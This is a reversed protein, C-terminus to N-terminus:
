PFSCATQMDPSRNKSKLKKITKRNGKDNIEHAVSFFLKNYMNEPMVEISTNGGGEFRTKETSHQYALSFPVAKNVHERYEHKEICGGGGGTGTGKKRKDYEIMHSHIGIGGKYHFEAVSSDSDPSDELLTFKSNEKFSSSKYMIYKTKYLINM